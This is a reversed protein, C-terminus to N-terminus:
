FLIVKFKCDQSCSASGTPGDDCDEHEAQVVNDGCREARSCDQRCSGYAGDNAATGNDCQEPGNRVGDGCSPVNRKCEYSCGAGSPSYAVNGNPDDCEESGNQAGDGCYPGWLCDSRCGNYANDSNAAGNDCQELASEVVGDGCYPVATCHAGCADSTYAYTDENFGNDCAERSAQVIADGCRPGRLCATTCSDYSANAAPSNNAGNDCEEGAAQQTTMDGCRPGKKCTTDCGGYEVSGPAANFKGYDCDESPSKIGDGCFAAIQCQSNCQATGPPECTEDGNRVSDGCHPAEKCDFGCGGAATQYAVKVATDCYEDGDDKTNDGCYGAFGRCDTTCSGYEGSNVGDDCVEGAFAQVKHDGCYPAPKCDFGCAGSTERYTVKTADDCEESGNEAGDGCFEISCNKLCINYGSTESRGDDCIETGARIGDGCTTSCSSRPALFGQLTLKFNSGTPHREANFLVIEYVKGKELGFRTDTNDAAEATSLPCATPTTTNNSADTALGVTCSSDEATVGSGDDGLVVRGWQQGHIGGIDVALRGNIFVWVDDDGYFTLTEGGKYQFFSRLETTFHFNRSQGTTFGFGRAAIDNATGSVDKGLPYFEANEYSYAHTASDHSLELFDNSRLAADPEVWVRIDDDPAASPGKAHTDNSDRYWLAFAASATAFNSAGSTAINTDISAHMGPHLVPKGQADLHGCTEETNNTSTCVAGVIGSDNGGLPPGGSGNAMMQPHVGKPKELDTTNTLDDRGRFDRYTVRMRVKDPYVLSSVCSFGAEVVCTSSCGDGSLANGDDCAEGSTVLGDGCSTDVVPSPGVTVTPENQCTPGCGDGGIDNGDDCGEGREVKPTAVGNKSGCKTLACNKGSTDCDYGAQIFCNQCGTSTEECEEGPELTGNGCIPQCALGRPCVYGSEVTCAASCGDGGMPTTPGDDCQEDPALVGDGCLSPVCTSPEGSCYYDTAIACAPTTCGPDSVAGPDCQEGIQIVGDGCAPIQFCYGSGPCAWGTDIECDTCGPINCPPTGTCAPDCEEDLNVTGDGCVGPDGAVDFSTCAKPADETTSTCSADAQGCENRLNGPDCIEGPEVCGDGCVIDSTCDGAVGPCTYFPERKCAASCGDGSVLDGDDCEESGTMLGDGCIPRCGSSGCRWGTELKCAASCGDGDKPSSEGDDCQEDPTRKGDGCKLAVCAKGPPCFWAAADELQCNASCGDDDVPPNVADDCQEGRERVGNGCVPSVVCPQGPKICSFGTELVKCTASCGDGDTPPSEGDDCVESGEIIGNGCTVVRTCAEGASLCLYDPDIVTCSANCGDGDLVNGDDCLEGEEYKANGCVAPARMGGDADRGGDIAGGGGNGNGAGDGNGGKGPDTGDGGIGDGGAGAPRDGTWSVTSGGCAATGAALCGLLLIRALFRQSSPSRLIRAFPTM